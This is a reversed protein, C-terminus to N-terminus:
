RRLVDKPGPSELAAVRSELAGIREALTAADHADFRAELRRLAATIMVYEQDLRGVRIELKEVLGHLAEVRERLSSLTPSHEDVKGEITILRVAMSQQTEQMLRLQKHIELIQTYVTTITIRPKPM